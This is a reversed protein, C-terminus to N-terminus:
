LLRVGNIQVHVIYPSSM